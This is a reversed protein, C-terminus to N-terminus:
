APRASWDLRMDRYDGEPSSGQGTVEFGLTRYFRAARTNKVLCKLRYQRHPWDPLAALLAKGAGRGQYDPLIYLMHIFDDPEWIAMFGAISGNADECVFVREGQTHAAFDERHFRGPDVWVFTLRRVLLYIEALAAQDSEM